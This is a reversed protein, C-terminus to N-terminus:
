LLPSDGHHTCWRKAQWTGVVCLTRTHGACMGPGAISRRARIYSPIAPGAAEPAITFALLLGILLFSATVPVSDPRM